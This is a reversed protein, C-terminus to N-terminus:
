LEDTDEYMRQAAPENPVLEAPDDLEGNAWRVVKPSVLGLLLLPDTEVFEQFIAIAAESEARLSTCDEHGFRDVM